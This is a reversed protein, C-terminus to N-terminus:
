RRVTVGVARMAAVTADSVDTRGMAAARLESLHALSATASLKMCAELVLDELGISLAALTADTISTYGTNLRRLARLRAYPVAATIARYGSVNLDELGEM